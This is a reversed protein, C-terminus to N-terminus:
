THHEQDLAAQDKEEAAACEWILRVVSGGLFFFDMAVMYTHDMYINMTGALAWFLIWAMNAKQNLLYKM